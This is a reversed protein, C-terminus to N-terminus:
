TGDHDLFLDRILRLMLQNDWKSGICRNRCFCTYVWAEITINDSGFEFDSGDSKIGVGM